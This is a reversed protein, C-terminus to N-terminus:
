GEKVLGEPPDAIFPFSKEATRHKGQNLASPSKQSIECDLNVKGAGFIDWKLKDM